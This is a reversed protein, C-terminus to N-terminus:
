VIRYHITISVPTGGASLNGVLKSNDPLLFRQWHSVAFTRYYETGAGDKIIIRPSQSGDPDAIASVWFIEIQNGVGPAAILDTDGASSIDIGLPILTVSTYDGYRAAVTADLALDAFANQLPPM